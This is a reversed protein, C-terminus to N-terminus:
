ILEVKAKEGEVVGLYFEGDKDMGELGAKSIAAILM